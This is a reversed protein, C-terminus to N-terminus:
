IVKNKVFSLSTYNEYPFTHQLISALATRNYILEELCDQAIPEFDQHFKNVFLQPANLLYHLDGVGIVCIARSKKGYCPKEGWNKFRALFPKNPGSEPEGLYSGPVKLFPNHNLTSFFVEDPHKTHRSWELLDIARQDNIIFELYGRCVIIHSAGKVPILNHPPPGIHKWRNRQSRKITGEIDNAGNYAKLIKVLEWNAKLPFEQGALNIFYKWRYKLLDRMCVLDADLVTHSWVVNVRQSAMIVNPFCSSIKEVAAFVHRFSKIDVHFCYFNQPRYIARFLREFQEPHKFMMISFAIPFEKEEQTLSSMIYGNKRILDNCSFPQSVNIPPKEVVELNNVMQLKAEEIAWQEHHFLSICDVSKVKRRPQLDFGEQRYLNNITIHKLRNRTIVIVLNFLVFFFFIKVLFSPRYM